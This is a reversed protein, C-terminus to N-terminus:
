CFEGLAGKGLGFESGAPNAWAGIRSQSSAALPAGSPHPVYVGLAVTVNAVATKSERSCLPPLAPKEPFSAWNPM